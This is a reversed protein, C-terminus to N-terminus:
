MCKCKLKYTFSKAAADEDRLVAPVPCKSWGAQTCLEACVCWDQRMQSVVDGRRPPPAKQYAQPSWPWVRMRGSVSSTHEAGKAGQGRKGQGQKRRRRRWTM